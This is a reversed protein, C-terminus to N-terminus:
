APLSLKPTSPSLSFRRNGLGLITVPVFLIHTVSPTRCPCIDVFWRRDIVSRRSLSLCVISFVEELAAESHGAIEM